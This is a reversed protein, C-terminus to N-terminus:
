GRSIIKKYEWLAGLARAAREPSPYNTIANSDELIRIENDWIGPPASICTMIPKKQKWEKLMDTIGQVAKINASAYMILLVVSDINEDRMAVDIIEKTAEADYWAPGMDVPNTRIAMPPLLENIRGQTKPTFAPIVLGIKEAMDSAAMGPGAQGSLVAVNPGDPISSTSLAKAGDILEEASNVLIAGAQRLAGVYIEYKGAISGTHSRSAKDGSKSSGTKYAIIPKQKHIEKIAQMMRSPNDVGEIYLAIVKTDPDDRLFLLMEYFDVNLRNGIGVIKSFAIDQRQSLFSILHSMGGSQSVLAINGKKTLSFEPTFSANLDYVLNIMGFTNPGIVPIEYSEAKQRLLEQNKAGEPDDIEKFGATILVIGAVGKKHCEDFIQFVFRAPVAIIALDIDEDCAMISPYAKIGMIEKAGPNIPIIKGKYGGTTLSKMVHFGLKDFKESAGIVAVSRPRFLRKMNEIKKNM